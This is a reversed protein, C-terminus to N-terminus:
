NLVHSGEILSFLMPVAFKKEQYMNFDSLLMKESLENQGKLETM